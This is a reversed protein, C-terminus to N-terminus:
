YVRFLLLVMTFKHVSNINSAKLNTIKIDKALAFTICMHTREQPTGSKNVIRAYIM